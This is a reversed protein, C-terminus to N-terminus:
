ALMYEKMGADKILSVVYDHQTQTSAAAMTSFMVFIALLTVLVLQLVRSSKM